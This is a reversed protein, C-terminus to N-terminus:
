KEGVRELLCLWELKETLPFMDYPELHRLRFGGHTCLYDLDRSLTKAECSMYILHKTKDILGLFVPMFAPAIGTRPPNICVLDPNEAWTEIRDTLVDEIRGQIFDIDEELQNVKAASVANKHAFANEEISLTRFGQRALSLSIQGVGSCLDWAVSSSNPSKLHSALDELRRYMIAAMWPNVQTFVGPSLEFYFDNISDKLRKSGFIHVYEESFLANGAQSNVNLYVSVLNECEIALDEILQTLVDKCDLHTVVCVLMIQELNRSMRVGLYRLDGSHDAENYSKIESQQLRTKLAELLRNINPHHIPCNPIPVIEHTGPRFLGFEMPDGRVALKTYCRYEYAHPAHVPDLIWARKDPSFL